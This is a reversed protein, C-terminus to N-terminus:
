VACLGARCRFGHCGRGADPEVADVYEIHPKTQKQGEFVHDSKMARLRENIALMEDTLSVRHDDGGKM